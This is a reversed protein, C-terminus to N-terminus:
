ASSTQKCVTRLLYVHQEAASNFKFRRRCAKRANNSLKIALNRDEILRNICQVLQDVNGAKYLLASEEHVYNRCIGPLDAAVIPLGFLAAEDLVRPQGEHVSHHVLMDMNMYYAKLENANDVYGCFMLNDSLGLSVSLDALKQKDPGDGVLYIKITPRENKRMIRAFAQIICELNKLERLVSVVLIHVVEKEKLPERNRGDLPCLQYALIPMSEYVNANYQRAMDYMHGRTLVM